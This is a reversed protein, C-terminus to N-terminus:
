LHDGHEGPKQTLFQAAEVGHSVLQGERHDPLQARFALYLLDDKTM